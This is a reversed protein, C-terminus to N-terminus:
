FLNLLSKGFIEKAEKDFPDDGLYMDFYARCLLESEVESIQEDKVKMQLIYGPLRTIEIVSGASLKISDKAAGMVKNVLEDDKQGGKLKKLSAGLGENFNKRVMNMTLAKFVIILRVKMGIDSNIVTEYLEKTPESPAKGFKTKLLEKLKTNDAYVGFAYINISLAIVKKRRVGLAMLQKGDALKVPFSVGTKPEVDMEVNEEEEVGGKKEEVGHDGGEEIEEEVDVVKEDKSMKEADEEGVKAVQPKETVEEVRKEEGDGNVNEEETVSVPAM